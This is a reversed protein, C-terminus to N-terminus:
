LDNAAERASLGFATKMGIERREWQTLGSLYLYFPFHFHSLCLPPPRGRWIMSWIWLFYQIERQMEIPLNIGACGFIATSLQRRGFFCVRYM